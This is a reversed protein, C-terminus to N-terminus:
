RHPRRKRSNLPSVARRGLGQRYGRYLMLESEAYSLLIQPTNDQFIYPTPVSFCCNKSSSHGTPQEYLAAGETLGNPLGIQNRRLSTDGLPAGRKSYWATGAPNPIM